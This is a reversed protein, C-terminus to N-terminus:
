TSVQIKKCEFPDFHQYNVLKFSINEHELYATETNEGKKAVPHPLFFGLSKDPSLTQSEALFLFYTKMERFETGWKYIPANM